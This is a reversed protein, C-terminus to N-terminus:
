AAAKPEEDQAAEGGEELKVGHREAWERLAEMIIDQNSMRHDAGYHKMAAWWQPLIRFTTQIRGDSNAM